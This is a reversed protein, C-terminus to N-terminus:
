AIGLQNLATKVDSAVIAYGANTLHITDSAFYTTNGTTQLNPEAQVDVLYSCYSAGTYVVGSVLTPSDARLDTNGIGQQTTMPGTFTGRNICTLVIVATAGAAKAANCRSITNAYVTAGSVSAQYDNTGAWLIYVKKSGTYNTWLTDAYSPASALITSVLRGGVGLNSWAYAGSLAAITTTPYNGHGSSNYGATLSDGDFVIQHNTRSVTNGLGLGRKALTTRVAAINQAVQLATLPAAYMLAFYMTGNYGNGLGSTYLGLWFSSPNANSFGNDNLDVLVPAAVGNVYIANPNGWTYTLGLNGLQSLSGSFYQVAQSALVKCLLMDGERLYYAFGGAMSSTWFPTQVLQTSPNVSLFLQITQVNGAMTTPLQVLQSGNFALGSASYTPQFSGSIGLTGNNGNGSHDVLTTGSGEDFQYQALLNATVIKGNAVNVGQLGSSGLLPANALAMQFRSRM